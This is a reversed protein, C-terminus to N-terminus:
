RGTCRRTDRPIIPYLARIQTQLRDIEALMQRIDSPVFLNMADDRKSWERWETLNEPTINIM